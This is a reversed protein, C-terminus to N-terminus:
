RYGHRYPISHRVYVHATVRALVHIVSRGKDREMDEERDREWEWEMERDRKRDRDRDRDKDRLRQTEGTRLSRM